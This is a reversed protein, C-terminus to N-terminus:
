GFIRRRLEEAAKYADKESREADDLAESRDIGADQPLTARLLIRTSTIEFVYEHRPKTVRRLLHRNASCSEIAFGDIEQTM